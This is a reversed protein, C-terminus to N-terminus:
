KVEKGGMNLARQRIKLALESRTRGNLAASVTQRSINMIKKYETELVKVKGHELFVIRNLKEAM